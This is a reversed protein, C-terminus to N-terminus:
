YQGYKHACEVMWVYSEPPIGDFISSRSSLVYGGGEALGEMHQRVDEEIQQHTGYALLTTDINGVLCIQGQWQQKLQYIDNAGPEVPQIASIGLDILRPIFECMDGDSHFTCLKGADYIPAMLQRMRPMFLEDFMDPNIMLGSQYAVDDNIFVFAIEDYQCVAEMAELQVELIIDMLQEILERQTYCSLLFHEMGMALATSDFFSTMCPYVGVGTGEAAELYQELRVLQSKLDPPEDLHKLDDLTKIEGGIYHRTGDTADRFLNNPRYAFNAGVADMGIRRAFEVDDEPTVASEGEAADIVESQVPRGLVYEYVGQSTVWYELIPVCDPVECRFAALLRRIDSQRDVM